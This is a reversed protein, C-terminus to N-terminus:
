FVRLRRRLLGYAGFLATGLLAMSAPEPVAVEGGSISADATTGVSSAFLAAFNAPGKVPPSLFIEDLTPSLPTTFNLDYGSGDGDLLKWTIALPAGGLLTLTGATGSSFPSGSAPTGGSFVLPGVSNFSYGGSPVTAGSLPNPFTVSFTSSSTLTIAVCGSTNGSTCTQTSTGLTITQASSSVAGLTLLLCATAIYAALKKSVM